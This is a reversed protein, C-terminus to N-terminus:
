DTTKTYEIYFVGSLSSRNTATDISIITKRANTCNLYGNIVSFTYIM